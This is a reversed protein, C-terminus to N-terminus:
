IGSTCSSVLSALARFHYLTRLMDLSDAFCPVQSANNGYMIEVPNRVTWSTGHSTACTTWDHEIRKRNMRACEERRSWRNKWWMKWTKPATRRAVTTVLWTMGLCNLMNSTCRCVLPTTGFRWPIDLDDLSNIQLRLWLGKQQRSRQLSGTWADGDADIGFAKCLTLAKKM